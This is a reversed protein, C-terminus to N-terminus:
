GSVYDSKQFLTAVVNCAFLAATETRLRAKGLSVPVFGRSLSVEIEPLSFDGEPGILITIKKEETNKDIEVSLEKRQEKECHAIFKQGEVEKKLFDSFSTFNNLLPKHFRLSQKMASIVIKEM